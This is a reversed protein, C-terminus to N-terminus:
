KRHKGVARKRKPKATATDTATDTAAGGPANAQDTATDAAAAADTATGAATDTATADPAAPQGTTRSKGKKDAPAVADPNRVAGRNTSGPEFPAPTATNKAM